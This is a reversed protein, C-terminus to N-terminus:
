RPSQQASADNGTTEWGGGLAKYVGILAQLRALRYLSHQQQAAYLTRQADLVNLYDGSGAQYRLRAAEFARQSQEVSESHAARSADLHQMGSLANEVDLLANLISLRYTALLEEERGQAEERVARKRGGDFLTQILTASLVLSSGTGQLTIVAAQVAPNQVGASTTLSLSPFMAARAAAVDAHASQLNAEAAAIDPRRVLLDSPMGPMVVPEKVDELREGAVEFSEPAKGLLVALAGRTEIEQQELEPIEISAVAVAARQAALEAASAAGAGFRAEIVALVERTSALNQQALAIRERLSLLSFYENAIAGVLTLAASGLDARTAAAAARSAESAASNKSWFDFEYSASALLSWDTENASTGGSNGAFHSVSPGVDVQPLLAAGAARARADAQRVRAAAAMLDLNDRQASDIFRTLEASGFAEYWRSGPWLVTQPDAYTFASPVDTETKVPTESCAALLVGVASALLLGVITEATRQADGVQSKM